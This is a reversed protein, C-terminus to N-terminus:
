NLNDIANKAANQEAEKKNKGIGTGILQENAFVGVTYEKDHDPGTEMIVSYMPPKKATTQVLELLKSKYNTDTMINDLELLPLVNKYIFAVTKEIGKDIYIAAVLAEFADAIISEGGKDFNKETGFSIKLFKQLGINKAVLAISHKNVLKARIKTLEGEQIDPFFNFIYDTVVLGLVSDGLFELRENSEANPFNANIVSLYSRHTLAQEYHAINNIKAGIMLELQKKTDKNFYELNPFKQAQEEEKLKHHMSKPLFRLLGRYWNKIAM